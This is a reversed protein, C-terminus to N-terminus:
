EGEPLHSKPLLGKVLRLVKNDDYDERIVFTLKMGKREATNGGLNCIIKKGKRYVWTVPTASHYESMVATKGYIIDILKIDHFWDSLWNIM